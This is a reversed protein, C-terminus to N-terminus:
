SLQVEEREEHILWGKDVSQKRFPDVIIFSSIYMVENNNTKGIEEVHWIEDGTRALVRKATATLSLGTTGATFLFGAGSSVAGTVVGLVATLIPYSEGGLLETNLQNILHTNAPSLLKVRRKALRNEVQLLSATGNKPKIAIDNNAIIESKVLTRPQSTDQILSIIVKNLYVNSKDQLIQLQNIINSSM